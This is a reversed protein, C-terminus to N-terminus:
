DDYEVIHEKFHRFGSIPSQSLFEQEYIFRICHGCKPCITQGEGTHYDGYGDQWETQIYTLNKIATRRGCGKGYNNKTCTAFTTRAIYDDRAEQADKIAKDLEALRKPNM